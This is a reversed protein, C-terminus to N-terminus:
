RVQAFGQLVAVNGVVGIHHIEVVRPGIESRSDALVADWPWDASRGRKGSQFARCSVVYTPSLVAFGLM